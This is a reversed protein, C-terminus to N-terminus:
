ESIDVPLPKNAICHDSSNNVVDYATVKNSAFFTNAVQLRNKLFYEFSQEAIYKLHSNFLYELVTSKECSNLM